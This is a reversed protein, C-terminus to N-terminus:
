LPFTVVDPIGTGAITTIPSDVLLIEFNCAARVGNDASRDIRVELDTGAPLPQPFAFEYEYRAGTVEAQHAIIFPNGPTRVYFQLTVSKNNISCNGKYLYGIKGAPVTYVGSSIRGEGVSIHEVVSGSVSIDIEGVNATTGGVIMGDNVRHFAKTTTVPTTGNLTVTETIEAFNQDLGILYLQKGVDSASSSVITLLHNNWTAWPYLGGHGWITEPDTNSNIDPNYGTVHVSRAGQTLGRASNLRFDDIYHKAM